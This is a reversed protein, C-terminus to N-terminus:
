ASMDTQCPLKVLSQEGYTLCRDQSALLVDDSLDYELLLDTVHLSFM